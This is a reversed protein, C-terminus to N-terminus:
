TRGHPTEEDSLPADEHRLPINAIDAHRARSGPRFTYIAVGVFILFLTLLMWSDAFERMWDYTTMPDEEARM